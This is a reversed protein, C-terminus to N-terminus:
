CTMAWSNIVHEFWFLWCFKIGNTLVLILITLFRFRDMVSYFNPAHTHCLFLRHLSLSLLSIDDNINKEVQILKFKLHHLRFQNHTVWSFFDIKPVKIHSPLNSSEYFSDFLIFIFGSIKSSKKCLRLPKKERDNDWKFVIISKKNSSPCFNSEFNRM